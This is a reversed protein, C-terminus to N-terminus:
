FQCGQHPSILAWAEKVPFFQTLLFFVALLYRKLAFSDMVRWPFDGGAM